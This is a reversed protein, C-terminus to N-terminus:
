ITMAQGADTDSDSVLAIKGKLEFQNLITM